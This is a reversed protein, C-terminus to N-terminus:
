TKKRSRPHAQDYVKALHQFDLKTYIQTTSINSHGLMEQVARLDGSSQLVHTAFSHRLMHPHVHTPLGACLAHRALGQQVARAGIRKGRASLFLAHPEAADLAGRMQLWQALAQAAKEGVPVRRRKNGKGTVVVEREALDLWSSSRYGDAEVYRHDLSTLESLRLGSSYLLEFMARNRVAEASTGSAFEVLATAQDPSLAKPLPRPQKPARVGEVPNAALATRQALWAFYGRWASLKRAISRGVLGESHMQMVFRRIDGHQLSELPRGRAMRQLQRLDRTYNELTLGALKRESALSSLYARLGAELPTDDDASRAPAAPATARVASKAAPVAGSTRPAHRSRPAPARPPTAM